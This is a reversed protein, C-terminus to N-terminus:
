VLFLLDQSISGLDYYFYSLLAAGIAWCNPVVKLGPGSGPSRPDLGTDPGRCLAQKERQRHRQREAEVGERDTM